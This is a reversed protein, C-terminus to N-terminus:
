RRGLTNETMQISAFDCAEIQAKRYAPFYGDRDDASRGADLCLQRYREPRYVEKAARLPVRRPKFKEKAKAVSDGPQVGGGMQLWQLGRASLQEIGWWLLATTYSKGDRVRLSLHCEGGFASCGFTHVACIDQEDAAGVMLVQPDTCMARLTAEPWVGGPNAQKDRMFAHYNRLVFQTLAARDTVYHDHGRLHDRVARRVSRDVSAGIADIGGGLDLVYLNNSDSLGVHADVMAVQPHLAFYGCVYGRSAVFDLWHKRLTGPCGRGSFGGFGGPTFIDTTGIWSREAFSCVACIGQEEDEIAYLYVPLGSGLHFAHSAEWSQWYSHPIGALARRWEEPQAVSILSEAM